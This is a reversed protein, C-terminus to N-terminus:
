VSLAEVSDRHSQAADEEETHRTSVGNSNHNHNSNQNM